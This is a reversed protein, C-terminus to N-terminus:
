ARGTTPRPAGPQVCWIKLDLVGLEGHTEPSRRLFEFGKFKTSAARTGRGRFADEAKEGTQKVTSKVEDARGEVQLRGDGTVEGTNREVLSLETLLRAQQEGVEIQLLDSRCSGV